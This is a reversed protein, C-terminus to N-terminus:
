TNSAKAPLAQLLALIEEAYRVKEPDKDTPDRPLRDYDITFSAGRTGYQAEAAQMVGWTVCRPPRGSRAIRVIQTPEGHQEAFEILRGKYINVYRSAIDYPVLYLPPGNLEAQEKFREIIRKADPEEWHQMIRLLGRATKARKPKAMDWEHALLRTALGAETIGLAVALRPRNYDTPQAPPTKHFENRILDAHEPSFHPIFKGDRYFWDMPTAGVDKAMEDIITVDVGELERQLEVRAVVGRFADLYDKAAPEFYFVFVRGSETPEYRGICRYGLTDRLYKRITVHPGPIEHMIDPYPLFEKPLALTSEPHFLAEGVAKSQISNILKAVTPPFDFINSPSAPETSAKGINAGSPTPQKGLIIGQEVTEFGFLGFLSLAKRDMTPVFIHGYVTIPFRKSLRTGRGIEQLFKLRSTIKGATVVIDIDENLGERGWDVTIIFDLDGERYRRRIGQNSDPDSPHKHAKITGAVACQVYSGDPKRMRSLRRAMALAYGSPVGGGQECFIIGRRGEKVYPTLFETTAERIVLQDIDKEDLGENADILEQSLYQDHDARIEFLQAANLIDEESQIYDLLDGHFIHHSLLTRADKLEHYDPTATFGIIPQNGWHEVLIKQLQPQTIRHAEDIMCIDFSEGDLQGNRFKEVFQDITIVVADANHNREHQYYGGVDIGPAFQQLTGDGVKGTMQEVITQSPVIILARVRGQDHDINEIPQGVGAAVLARAMLVTKGLGTPAEVLAAHMYAETTIGPEPSYLIKSPAVNMFSIIDRMYPQQKARLGALFVDEHEALTREATNIVALQRAIAGTEPLHNLAFQGLQRIHDPRGLDFEGARSAEAILRLSRVYLLGRMGASEATFHLQGTHLDRERESDYFARTGLLAEVEPIYAPAREILTM